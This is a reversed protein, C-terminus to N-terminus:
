RGSGRPGGHCSGGGGGTAYGDGGVERRDGAPCSRRDGVGSAQRRDRSNRAPSIGPTMRDPSNRREVPPCENMRGGPGTGFVPSGLLPLCLLALGLDTCILTQVSTLGGLLQESVMSMVVNNGSHALSTVWVSGSGAYLWGLLVEFLLFMVTWLPISVARDTFDAYGLFALPYHWFAWILGTALLSLRPRGPVLRPWLFSTWGFEEGFYAPILVVQVALLMPVGGPGGAPGVGSRWWGASYACGLMVATAALPALWGAAWLRWPARLRLGATAFGERTVWRRVVAAGIAPVFAVPLQVLPDVLSWGFGLRVVFLYPWVGGFAIALYVVIGRGRSSM